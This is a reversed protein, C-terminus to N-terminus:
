KSSLHAELPGRGCAACLVGNEDDFVDSMTYPIDRDCETCHLHFTRAQRGRLEPHLDNPMLPLIRTFPWLVQAVVRRTSPTYRLRALGGDRSWGLWTETFIRTCHRHACFQKNGLATALELVTQDPDPTTPLGLLSHNTACPSMLVLRLMELDEPLQDLIGRAMDTCFAQMEELEVELNPTLLLTRTLLLSCMKHVLLTSRLPNKTYRLLAKALRFAGQCVAWTVLDFMSVVTASHAYLEFGPLISELMKAADRRWPSMPAVGASGVAAGSPAPSAVDERVAHLLSSHARQSSTRGGGATCCGPHLRDWLGYLLHVLTGERSAYPFCYEALWFRRQRRFVGVRMDRFLGFADLRARDFLSPLDVNEPKAGREILMDVLAVDYSDSTAYSLLGEFAQQVSTPQRQKLYEPKSFVEDLIDVRGWQVVLQLLGAHKRKQYMRRTVMRVWEAHDAYDAHLVGHVSFLPGTGSLPRRFSSLTVPPAVAASASGASAGDSSDLPVTSSTAIEGYLPPKHILPETKGPGPHAM